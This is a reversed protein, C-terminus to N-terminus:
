VPARSPPAPAAAAAALAPIDAARGTPPRAVDPPRSPRTPLPCPTSRPLSRLPLYTQGTPHTPPPPLQSSSPLSLSLSCARLYFLRWHRPAERGTERNAGGQPFKRPRPTHRTRRRREGARRERPRADDTGRRPGRTAAAPPTRQVRHPVGTDLRVKAEKGGGTEVWRKWGGNGGVTEGWRKWGANGGVTEVWRKWGGNGSAKEV